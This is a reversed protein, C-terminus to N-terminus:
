ELLKNKEKFEANTQDFNSIMSALTGNGYSYFVVGLIMLHCIFFKEILTAPTIDGYGVTSITTITWYVYIFYL